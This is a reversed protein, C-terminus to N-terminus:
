VYEGGNMLEVTFTGNPLSLDNVGGVYATHSLERQNEARIQVSPADETAM